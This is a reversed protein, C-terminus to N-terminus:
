PRATIRADRAARAHITGRQSVDDSRRKQEACFALGPQTAPHSVLPLAGDEVAIAKDTTDHGTVLRRIDPVTMEGYKKDHAILPM